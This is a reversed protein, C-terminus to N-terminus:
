CSSNIWTSILAASRPRVPGNTVDGEHSSLPGNVSDTERVARQAHEAAQRMNQRRRWVNQCQLMESILRLEVVPISIWNYSRGRISHDSLPQFCWFTPHPPHQPPPTDMHAVNPTLRKGIAKWLLCVEWWTTKYKLVTIWNFFFDIWISCCSTSVNIWSLLHLLAFM